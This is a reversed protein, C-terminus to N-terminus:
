LERKLFGDLTKRLDEEKLPKKLHDSMGCLKYERIDNENNEKATLAVIPVYYLEGDEIKKNINRSAELGDMIPMQIDMLVLDYCKKSQVSELLMNICDGGSVAKSVNYGLKELLFSAALINFPNDDVLLINKSGEKASSLDDQNRPTSLILAGRETDISYTRRSTRSPFCISDRHRVRKVTSDTEEQFEDFSGSGPLNKIKADEHNQEDEHNEDDLVISLVDKFLVKFYFKTGKGYESEFMLKEDENNDNLAKVLENAITLGLGAGHSNINKDEQDLKGFMKFLKPKDEEKIGVGTDVVSFLLRQVNDTEDMSVSLTISGKLTFKFANGLLNILIEILRYKDTYVQDLVNVSKDIIFDIGKQETQFLYLSRLEELFEYLSFHDKVIKLKNHRIQSLDLISNVLYLLLKSCSKCYNLYMLCMEDSIRSTVIELLGLIGNIPTRLEHSVTAIVKDKQEDAFKLAMVLQKDSVDDFVLAYSPESEWRIRRLKIEYYYRKAEDDMFTTSLLIVEKDAVITADSSLKDIFEQLNTIGQRKSELTPPFNDISFKEFIALGKDNTDHPGFKERFFHNSYLVSKFDPPMVLVSSPFDNSLLTQFKKLQERSEYIVKYNKRELVDSYLYFLIFLLTVTLRSTIGVGTVDKDLIIMKMLFSAITVALRLIM